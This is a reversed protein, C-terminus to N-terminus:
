QSQEGRPDADRKAEREEAARMVRWFEERSPAFHIGHKSFSASVPRGPTHESEPLSGPECPNIAESLKRPRESTM